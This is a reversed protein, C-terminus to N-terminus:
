RRNWFYGPSITTQREQSDYQLLYERGIAGLERLKGVEVQAIETDTSLLIVQHSAATFYREILNHRHESDLRGLPTDIAVPLNRGSVRALAWLFAIALLQKEGASLRHKPVEGESNYLSLRFSDKDITVRNVLGSKHLLYRFCSWVERELKNLKKLTLKERFSALTKKVKEVSDIIHENNKRTLVEESYTELEKKTAAIKKEIQNFKRQAMELNVKCDIRLSEAEKVAHDLEQYAEPSAAVALERQLADIELELSALKERRERVVEMAHPVQYELINVLQKIDEREIGLFPRVGSRVERELAQNEEELFSKIKEIQEGSLSLAELYALLRSDRAVLIQRTIQADQYKLEQEGQSLSEKLLPVILSVPLVGAALFRMAERQQRKEEELNQIKGELKSRGAAIKGGELRYKNYARRYLKEALDLDKKGGELEAEIEEKATNLQHLKAEIAELDALQTNNALAKRKRSAIVDLDVELREALELGLLSKIAEVVAPIPTDREALEKVQEGDFLFLNSIGIPLINEIYEDWTNVLVTDPWEGDLIGLNDKGDKPNRTWHRVIRLQVPEPRDETIIEFALEIRAYENSPTQTNVCQTLFDSYSLNGRTSCQARQGYLALRIADMLTTKGEGNMGGVLIIPGTNEGKESRLNIKHRQRYPGFNELVLETFIM